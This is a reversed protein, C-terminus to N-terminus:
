RSVGATADGTLSSTADAPFNSASWSAIPLMSTSCSPLSFLPLHEFAVSCLCEFSSCQTNCKPPSSCAPRRVFSFWSRWLPCVHTAWVAVRVSLSPSFTVVRLKRAAILLFAAFGWTGALSNPVVCV